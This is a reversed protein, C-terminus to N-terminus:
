SRWNELIELIEPLNESASVFAFGLGKPGRWRV